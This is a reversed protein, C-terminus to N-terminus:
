RWRKEAPEPFLPFRGSKLLYPVVMGLGNGHFVGIPLPNDDIEGTEVAEVAAIPNKKKKFGILQRLPFEPLVVPGV